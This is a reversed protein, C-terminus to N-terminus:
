VVTPSGNFNKTYKSNVVRFLTENIKKICCCKSLSGHITIPCWFFKEKFNLERREALLATM